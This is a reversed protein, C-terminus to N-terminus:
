VGIAISRDSSNETGLKAGVAGPLCARMGLLFRNFLEVEVNHFRQIRNSFQPDKKSLIAELDLIHNMEDNKIKKLSYPRQHKELAEDIHSFWWFSRTELIASCYQSTLSIAHDASFESSLDRYILIALRFFYSKASAQAFSERSEYTLDKQRCQNAMRKFLLAHVNEELIQQLQEEQLGSTPYSAAMSTAGLSEWMSFTNFFRGLTLEDPVILDLLEMAESNCAAYRESTLLNLLPGPNQNLSKSQM